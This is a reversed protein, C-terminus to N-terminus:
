NADPFRTQFSTYVDGPRCFGRKKHRAMYFVFVTVTYIFVTALVFISTSTQVQSLSKGCPFKRHEKVYDLIVLCIVISSVLLGHLTYKTNKTGGNLTKTVNNTTNLYRDISNFYTKARQNQPTKIFLGYDM